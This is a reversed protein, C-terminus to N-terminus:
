LKLEPRPRARLEQEIVAEKLSRHHIRVIKEEVLQRQNKFNKPLNRSM